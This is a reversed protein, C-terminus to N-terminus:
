WGKAAAVLHGHVTAVAPDDAVAPRAALYLTNIPPVEPQHLAVVSGAALAM